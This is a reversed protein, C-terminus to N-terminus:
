RNEGQKASAIAAQTASLWDLSDEVVVKVPLARPREPVEIPRPAPVVKAVPLDEEALAAEVVERDPLSNWGAMQTTQLPDLTLHRAALDRLRTPNNLHSWEAKLVHVAERDTQIQRELGDRRDVLAQVEYKLQFLGLSLAMALVIGLVTLTRTM